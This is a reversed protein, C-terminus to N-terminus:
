PIARPALGRALAARYASPSVGSRRTFFRSFYAADDFGLASAVQAVPQASHALLRRADLLVREHALDLASLGVVRRCSRSLHDVSVGLAQAYFRLPPQRRGHLELLARYRQVLTDRLAQRREAAQRLLALALM